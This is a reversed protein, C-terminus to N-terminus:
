SPNKPTTQCLYFIPAKVYFSLRPNAQFAHIATLPSVQSEFHGIYPQEFSEQASDYMSNCGCTSIQMAIYPTHLFICIGCRFLAFFTAICFLARELAQPSNYVAVGVYLCFFTKGKTFPPSDAFCCVLGDQGSRSASFAVVLWCGMVSASAM